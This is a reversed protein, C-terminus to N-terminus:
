AELGRERNLATSGKDGFVREFLPSMVELDILTENVDFILVSPKGGIWQAKTHSEAPAEDRTPVATRSM